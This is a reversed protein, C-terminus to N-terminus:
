KKERCQALAMLAYGTVLNPNGEMWRANENVWSGDPQQRSALTQILDARWNHKKGTADAFQDLGVADLARAFTQYYYYLGADGLGPNEDLTYHRALWGLAAKVRPDDATLGAFIMSKLGAYTMSGYSRLGGNDTTGAQSTGGAAPTYYFGGDNVKASFPTTNNESELNQCRSVFLLAKQMAEDDPGAGLSKLADTLFTTNSLDPRQHGGYGAGGFNVSSKEHGEGGDWQLNRVFKEAGDLLKDYRGDRNAESFCQIAICTEYNQHNSGAPYIGGDPHVFRQMYKLSKAVLPDDPSRGTKLIATAVLATVAPGAEASFSGDAAQSGRLYEIARNVTTEYTKRDDARRTAADAAPARRPAAIVVSIGVVFLVVFRNSRIM